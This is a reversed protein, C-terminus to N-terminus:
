SKRIDELTVTQTTEAGINERNMQLGRAAVVVAVAFVPLVAAAAFVMEGVSRVPGPFSAIPFIVIAAAAAMMLYGSVTNKTTM